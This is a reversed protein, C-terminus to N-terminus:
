FGVPSGTARPRVLVMTRRPARRRGLLAEGAADAVEAAATAVVVVLVRKHIDIAAIRYTM